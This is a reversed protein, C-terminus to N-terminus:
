SSGRSKPLDTRAFVALVVMFHWIIPREVWERLIIVELRRVARRSLGLKLVM